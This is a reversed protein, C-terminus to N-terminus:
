SAASGMGSANGARDGSSSKLKAKEIAETKAKYVAAAEPAYFGKTM